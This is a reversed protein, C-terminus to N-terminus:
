GPGTKLKVFDATRRSETHGVLDRVIIELTYRGAPLSQVPVSVFQRRLAGLQEEGRTATIPDPVKKPAFARQLWIRPDKEASKVTYVYEFHALGDRDAALRYIEFYATLPDRPGIRASPNPEPRVSTIGGSAGVFPAGCSVVIDSLQMRPRVADLAFETKYLGRRGRRDRVSVGLTYHGPDLAQLLDAVRRQEPDCASPALMRTGRKLERTTSDLVVWELYLSDSPDGDVEVQALLQPRADSEFQAVVGAVPM